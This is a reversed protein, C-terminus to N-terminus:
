PASASNWNAGNHASAECFLIMRKRPNENTSPGQAAAAEIFDATRFVDITRQVNIQILHM